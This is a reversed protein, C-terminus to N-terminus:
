RKTSVMELGGSRKSTKRNTPRLAAISLKPLFISIVLYVSLSTGLVRNTATSPTPAGLTFSILKTAGVAQTIPSTVTPFSDLHTFKQKNRISKNARNFYAQPNFAM